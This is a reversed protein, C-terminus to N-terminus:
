PQPFQRKVQCSYVWKAFSIIDFVPKGTAQNLAQGYPALNHCELVFSGIGPFESLLDLGAQVVDHEVALKDLMEGNNLIPERFAQSDQMGGIALPLEDLFGAKGLIYPTLSPKSATLIAVRKRTMAYVLPVQLLSSLFVPVQVAQAINEQLPSLFGCSSTLAVVGEAQLQQAAAIFDELLTPDADYVARQVTASPVTMLRVPFPYSAPHGVDGPIRPFQTDLLMIGLVPEMTM